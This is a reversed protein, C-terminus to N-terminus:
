QGQSSPRGRPRSGRLQRIRDRSVTKGPFMGQASSLAAAEKDASGRYVDQYLEYWRKLDADSVPPGEKEPAGPAQAETVNGSLLRDLDSPRLRVSYYRIITRGAGHVFKDNISVRLDGIVWLDRWDELTAYPFIFTSIRTIGLREADQDISEWAADESIATIMGGILRGSVLTGTAVGFQRQLIEYTQAATPWASLEEATPLPENTTM